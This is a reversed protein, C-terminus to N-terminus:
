VMVPNVGTVKTEKQIGEVVIDTLEKDGIFIRFENNGGGMRSLAAIMANYVAPFVAAAIGATIQNNNAVATKGDLTGVMEPGAENAIFMQGKDPFGGKAYTYFSSPWKITFGAVTKSGWNIGIKPLKFSIGLASDIGLWKKITDWGSKALKITVNVANGIWESLSSSWGKVRNVTVSVVNGIFDSLSTTWGKVRNVTVNVVNGVFESLSTWGKKLLSVTAKLNLLLKDQLERFASKIKEIVNEKIWSSINKIPDLIGKKLGDILYGGIKIMTKAPSSIGFGKKIGKLFPDILHTKVWSAINSVATVIGSCLGAVFDGGFEETKESLYKEAKKLSDGLFGGILGGIGGIAAGIGEAIKTAIGAYDIASFFEKLKNGVKKWDTNELAQIVVDLLGKVGESFASGAKKFNINSIVGNISNAIATGLKSWEFTTVFTYGFDIITNIGEAFTKGVLNWDTAKIFGNLFTAISKAIKRATGQITDWPISELAENLKKGIIVGIETFDATRWAEKLREAIRSIGSNVEVTEFMGGAGTGGSGGSGNGSGSSDNDDLKNIQDFGLLTKKLKENADAADNAASTGSNLSAAYDKSVKTAQVVYSKGTLASFLQGVANAATVAMQILTNLAPAVFNLIPAFATALTNKFQTLSSVLMSLSKNTGSDFQALNQFGEKMANRLKNVLVYLSRIGLGYKLINKFGSGFSNNTKKSANTFRNLIQIGSTFKQILSAFLGGAKKIVPSVKQLVSIMGSFAKKGIYAAEKAVRGIVPIRGVAEGVRATIEQVKGPISGIANKAMAVGTGIYSQNALGGSYEVDNGYAESMYKKSQYAELQRTASAIQATVKQWEDSEKSVGSAEMDRKKQKLKELQKEAREVDDCMRKYDDTNVKIGSALQAEKAYNKISHSLGDKLEGSMADGMTKKLMKRMNELQTVTENSNKLELPTNSAEKLSERIRKVSAIVKDITAKVSKESKEAQKTDIIESSKKSNQNFAKDIEKATKKATNIAEQAEKKLPSASAEIIVKLKELTESM